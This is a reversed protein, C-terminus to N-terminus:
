NMQGRLCGGCIWKETGEQLMRILMTDYSSVQACVACSEVTLAANLEALFTEVDADPGYHGRYGDALTESTSAGCGFCQINHNFLVDILEPNKEIVDAIIMDGSITPRKM